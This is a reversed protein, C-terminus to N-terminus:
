RIETDSDDSIDVTVIEYDEKKVADNEVKLEKKVTTEKTVENYFQMIEEGHDVLENPHRTNFDSSHGTTTSSPSSARVFQKYNFRATALAKWNPHLEDYRDM